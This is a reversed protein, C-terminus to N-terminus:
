DNRVVLPLYVDYEEPGTASTTFAWTYPANDLLNDAVDKGTSITVTYTTNTLFYMHSLTLTGEGNSWMPSLAVIPEISYVVSGTAMAENFNVILDANLAVDTAGDTPSVGTISPLDIDGTSVRVQTTGVLAGDTATITATGEIGPATYITVAYGNDDMDVGASSLAGLNTTFTIHRPLTIIQGAEVVTATISTSGGPAIAADAASVTLQPGFNLSIESARTGPFEGAVHLPDPMFGTVTETYIGQSVKGSSVFPGTLTLQRQANMRPDPNPAPSIFPASHLHYTTGDFTGTIAVTESFFLSEVPVMTGALTGADNSLLLL